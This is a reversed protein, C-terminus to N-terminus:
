NVTGVVRTRGGDEVASPPPEERRTTRVYAVAGPELILEEAAGDEYLFKFIKVGDPQASATWRGDQITILIPPVGFKFAFEFDFWVVPDASGTM